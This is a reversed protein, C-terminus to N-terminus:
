TRRFFQLSLLVHFFGGFRAGRNVWFRFKAKKLRIVTPAQASNEIVELGWPTRIFDSKTVTKVKKHPPEDLTMPCTFIPHTGQAM